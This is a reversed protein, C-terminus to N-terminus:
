LVCASLSVRPYHLHTHTHACELSQSLSYRFIVPRQNSSFGPDETSLCTQAWGNLFPSNFDAALAPLGAWTRMPSPTYVSPSKYGTSLYCLSYLSIVVHHVVNLMNGHEWTGMACLKPRTYSIIYGLCALRRRRWRGRGTQTGPLYKTNHMGRGRGRGLVSSLKPCRIPNQLRPFVSALVPDRHKVFIVCRM